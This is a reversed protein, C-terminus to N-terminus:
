ILKIIPIIRQIYKALHQLNERKLNYCFSSITNIIPPYNEMINQNKPFNIYTINIVEHM